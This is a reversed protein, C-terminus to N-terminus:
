ALMKKLFFKTQGPPYGEIAGCVQYGIGEYFPRAQFSFTELTAGIAGRSRAYTEAEQLLLSGYGQGRMPEAVWLHAIHLWGGWLIGLMGGLVDGREGRVVFNVPCWDHIGTTAVNCFDVGDVIFKREDDGIFPAFELRASDM